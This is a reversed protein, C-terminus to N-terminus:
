LVGAFWRIEDVPSVAAAWNGIRPYTTEGLDPSLDIRNYGWLVLNQGGRKLGTYHVRGVKHWSAGATTSYLLYRYGEEDQGILSIDGSDAPDFAMAYPAVPIVKQPPTIDDWTSPLTVSRLKPQNSREVRVGQIDVNDMYVNNTGSGTDSTWTLILQIEVTRVPETLLMQQASFATTFDIPDDVVYNSVIQDNADYCIIRTRFNKGTLTGDSGVGVFEIASLIYDDGLDVQVILGNALGGGALNVANYAAPPTSGLTTTGAGSVVTWHPYGSGDFTVVSLPTPPTPPEPIEMPLLVVSASRALVCGLVAREDTPISGVISFSGTKSSATYLYYNYKGDVGSVSGDPAVVAQLEDYISAGLEDDDHDTDAVTAGIQVSSGFIISSSTSRGCYVGTQDKWFVAAFHNEERSSIIRVKGNYGTGTAYTKVQTLTPNDALVDSIYYVYITAGDDTVLFADLQGTTLFYPSSYNLTGDRADGTYGSIRDWDVNPEPITFSRGVYGLANGALGVDMDLGLDPMAPQYPDELAPNWTNTMWTNAGGRNVPVTIGPQGFTEFTFEVSVQKRPSREASWQRNVSTPIARLNIFGVGEPDYRAPINLLHWVDLDCPEAVDLNRDADLTYNPYQPNVLAFHHGTIRNVENQGASQTVTFATMQEQRTGQAQASGPALSAYPTAEQGGAYSFAYGNVQGVQMRYLVPVQFANTFDGTNWTWQTQLANREANTFYMPNRLMRITGASKCGINGLFMEALNKLQGGIEKTQFVFSKRRLTTLTTDFDLDHGDVLFPAHLAAIYWAAGVPNSLLISVESWNAPAKTEIISQTAAPTDAAATMPSQLNITTTGRKRTLNLAKESAYGIYSHIVADVDELQRGEFLPNETLLFPQGPYLEGAEFTGDVEISLDRGTANQRDSSIRCPHRYSFPAHESSPDKSNAWVYRYGFRTKDNTSTIQCTIVYFGPPATFTVSSGTLSGGILTCGDIDWQYGDNARNWYYSDAASLTFTALGTTDNVFEAQHEGMRIIPDPNVGEGAYARDFQKYFTKNVIRSLLGWAPRHKYVTIYYNDALVGIINRAYGPDGQSKGDFYFISSTPTKRVVGWTIDQAGPSTGIAFAMGPKVATLWDASVNDVTVQGIPYTFSSQNVQASAVEILPAANIVPRLTHVNGRLLLQDAASPPM